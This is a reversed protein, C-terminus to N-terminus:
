GLKEMRGDSGHDLIGSAFIGSAEGETCFSITLCTVTQVWVIM